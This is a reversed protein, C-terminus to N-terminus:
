LPKFSPFHASLQALLDGIPSLEEGDEGGELRAIMCVKKNM